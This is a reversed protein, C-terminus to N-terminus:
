VCRSCSCHNIFRSKKPPPALRLNFIASFAASRPSVPPKPPNPLASLLLMQCPLPTKTKTLDSPSLQSLASPPSATTPALEFAM